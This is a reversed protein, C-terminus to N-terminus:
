YVGLERVAKVLAEVNEYPVEPELMHTPAIVLGGGKGVIEIREGVLRRVEDPTGFPMTTQTGVTGWFSLRDGYKEKLVYPDVCEPQVPNLVDVGIEILEDIVDYIVGDSHYFAFVNPNVGKAAAIVKATTPKIWERWCSPSMMMSRQTGVDDGFLVCDVGSAAAKAAIKAQIDCMRDLCASAMDEDSLMDVLLNDLGRLYWAWEFVQVADFATAYGRSKFDDVQKQMAEWRYDALVDPLPFEWVQEPSTFSAMPHLFETFHEMSGPRYGVGWEDVFANKPFNPFYPMYDPMHQTPPLSVYRIPFDYYESYDERGTKERFKHLLAPSLEFVFPVFAPSDRKIVRIFNERNTMHSRGASDKVLM